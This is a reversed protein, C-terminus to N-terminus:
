QEAKNQYLKIDAVSLLTDLDNGDKPAFGVGMSLSVPLGNGQAWLQTREEIRSMVTQVMSEGHRLLVVFEDGGWRGVLESDTSEKLIRGVELLVRDGAAHGFRDNIGKFANLDAFLLTQPAQETAREIRSEALEIFGSRNLLGTLSDYRSRYDLLKHQRDVQGMLMFAYLVLMIWFLGYFLDAPTIDFNGLRYRIGFSLVMGLTAVVASEAFPRMGYRMGNGFIVMLYALASPPVPYPDHIVSITVMFMDLLMGIRLATVNIQRMAMWFMLSNLVFYIGYVVMLNGLSLVLPQYGDVTLFFLSGLGWFIYRTIFQVIVERREPWWYGQSDLVSGQRREVDTTSIRARRDFGIPRSQIPMLQHETGNQFVAPQGSAKRAM